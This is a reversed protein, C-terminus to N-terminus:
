SQRELVNALHHELRDLLQRSVRRLRRPYVAVVPPSPLPAKASLRILRGASVHESVLWRPLVSVGLGALAASLTADLDDAVFRVDLGLKAIDLARGSLVAPFGRLDTLSTPVAREAFLSPAAVIWQPSRGLEREVFSPEGGHGVRIAFDFAGKALDIRVDALSVDVVLGHFQKMMRVIEPLLLLRGLAGPAAVKVRGALDSFGSAARLNADELGRVHEHVQELYARGEMTLAVRRTSREFLRLGLKDELRAIGRSVASQALSLEKGAQSFSGCEAVRCFVQLALLQDM